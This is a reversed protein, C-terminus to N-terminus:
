IWVAWHEKRINLTLFARLIYITCKLVQATDAKRETNASFFCERMGLTVFHFEILPSWLYAPLLFLVAALLLAQQHQSSVWLIGLPLNWPPPHTFFFSAAAGYPLPLHPNSFSPKREVVLWTSVVILALFEEFHIFPNFLIPIVM